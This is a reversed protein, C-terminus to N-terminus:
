FYKKIDILLSILTFIEITKEAIQKSSNAIASPCPVEYCISFVYSIFLMNILLVRCIKM